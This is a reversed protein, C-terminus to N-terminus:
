GMLKVIAGEALGVGTDALAVGGPAFMITAKVGLDFCALLAARHKPDLRGKFECHRLVLQGSKFVVFCIIGVTLPEMRATGEMSPDIVRLQHEAALTELEDGLQSWAAVRSAAIDRSFPVLRQADNLTAGARRIIADRRGREGDRRCSMSQGSALLANGLFQLSVAHQAETASSRLSSEFVTVAGAFDGEAIALRGREIMDAWSWREAGSRLSALRGVIADDLRDDEGVEFRPSQTSM